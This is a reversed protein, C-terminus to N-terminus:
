KKEKTKSSKLSDAAKQNPELHKIEVLTDIKGRDTSQTSSSQSKVPVGTKVNIEQKSPTKCSLSFTFFYLILNIWLLKKM